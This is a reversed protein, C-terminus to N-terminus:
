ITIKQEDPVKYSLRTEAIVEFMNGIVDDPKLFNCLGRPIRDSQFQNGSILHSYSKIGNHIYSSAFKYFNCKMNNKATRV